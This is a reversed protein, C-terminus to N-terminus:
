GRCGQLCQDEVDGFAVDAAPSHEGAQSVDALADLTPRILRGLDRNDLTGQTVVVVPRETDKVDAWWKPLPGVFRFSSPADGRPYEFGPVTLQLYHDPVTIM